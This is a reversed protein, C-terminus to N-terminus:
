DWAPCASPRTSIPGTTISSTSPRSRSEGHARGTAERIGGAPARGHPVVPRAADGSLEEDRSPAHPIRLSQREVVAPDPRRGRQDAAAGPPVLPRRPRRRQRDRRLQRTPGRVRAPRLLLSRAPGTGRRRRPSVRHRLDPAALRLSLRFEHGRRLRPRTAGADRPAARAADPERQPAVLGAALARSWYVAESRDPSAPGEAEVRAIAESLAPGLARAHALGPAADEPAEVRM